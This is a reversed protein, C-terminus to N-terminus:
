RGKFQPPRKQLFSAIGELFDDTQGAERQVERERQLQRGFSHDLGEWILRRTMGISPPGAALDHALALAAPMLDADPVCRNILGWDLARRAPLTEGLLAMEMARARGILRPLLYSAGGDPVLGIRRFAISFGAGEAAVVLDGMLAFACGIGTALGNVATILPVPLERLALMLPNYAIELPRGVDRGDPTAVDAAASALNAGSSFARGEGTLILCRAADPGSTVAQLAGMLAAAMELDIANLTKPDALTLIAVDGDRALKLKDSM